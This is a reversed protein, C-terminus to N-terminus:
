QFRSHVPSGCCPFIQTMKDQMPEVHVMSCGLQVLPKTVSPHLVTMHSVKVTLLISLKQVSNPSGLKSEETDAYDNYTQCICHENKSLSCRKQSTLIVTQLRPQTQVETVQGCKRSLVVCHQLKLLLVQNIQELAENLNSCGVPSVLWICILDSATGEQLGNFWPYFICRCVLVNSCCVKWSLWSLRIDLFLWSSSDQLVSSFVKLM